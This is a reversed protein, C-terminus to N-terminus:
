FKGYTLLPDLARLLAPRSLRLLAGVTKISEVVYGTKTKRKVSKLKGCIGARLNTAAINTAMTATPISPKTRAMNSSNSSGNGPEETSPSYSPVVLNEFVDLPLRALNRHFASM